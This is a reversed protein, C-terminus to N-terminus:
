ISLAMRLPQRAHFAWKPGQRLTNLATARAEAFFLSEDFGHRELLRRLRMCRKRLDGELPAADQRARELFAVSRRLNRAADPTLAPVARPASLRAQSIFPNPGVVLGWPRVGAVVDVSMAELKTLGFDRATRLRCAMWPDQPRIADIALTAETESGAVPLVLSRLLGIAHADQQQAAEHLWHIGQESEHLTAAARLILAGLRRQASLNGAVAAKELFFRAMQPNAVSAHNDSHVRYLLMWATQEGADAARMLLAAGKRMNQGTTLAAAPLPGSELGCLARGLLLTAARNGRRVCDELLAEIRDNASPVRFRHSTQAHQLVACVADALECTVAPQLLLACDRTQALLADDGSRLADTLAQTMLAAACIGPEGALARLVGVATAECSRNMAVLAARAAASGAAAAMEFWRRSEAPDTNTLCAWVGLKLRAAASPGKAAVQLAHLQELRLLDHLPLSEAIIVSAKESGAVSPHALYELGLGPHRPFGDAGLLYRRGTECRAALDGQRASALLQIDCRRM